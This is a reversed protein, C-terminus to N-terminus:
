AEEKAIVLGLQRTLALRYPTGPLDCTGAAFPLAFYGSLLAHDQWAAPKAPQAQLFHRVIGQHSIGVANAVLKETLWADPKQTLDITVGTGDPETNLAGDVIFLCVFNLSPPGLRTLAQLAAHVAPSDEELAIDDLELLGDDDPAKILRLKAENVEHERDARLRRRSEALAAQAAPPLEAEWAASSETEETYVAEILRPIDRPSEWGSLSHLTWYTRQLVYAPYVWIDAGFRPLGQEDHDVCIYLQPQQLKPPRQPRPHRHLRGARQILLDIPALDTILLDFDLDLSQEIVQTAVVISWRPRNGDKGYRTLVEGEIARRWGAPYRAHFLQIEAGSLEPLSCLEQFVAQSRAVTNCIVAACGGGQLKDVLIKAISGTSRPLRYLDVRSISPWSVPKTCVGQADAVSIAPYAGGISMDQETSYTKLLARRTVAPLTASLIIVSAGCARLWELLRLFLTNMYADYAHVEDFIITKHELGWLRVFFHRTKLVSLLAQDVTGVGFPALLSRKRPLFWGQDQVAGRAREEDQVRLTPPPQRRQWQAQGHLLLPDLAAMPYRRQLFTRVRGYMQNSTAMTPMAVYTGRLQLRANLTDAAFLAAETKGSGTPTEVIILAPAQITTLLDAVAAQLVNPAFPFVADFPQEAADPRWQEFGVSNIAFEARQLTIAAYQGVDLPVNQYPFFEAMSGIWDAVTTLGSLYMFVANQQATGAGLTRVEPPRFLNYLLAVLQRRAEQWPAALGIQDAKVHTVTQASPWLGHHGGLVKAIRRAMPRPMGAIGALLDPLTCTTLTAHGASENVFLDPFLFGSAQLRQMGPVYKRQFAPTAKGLDHSAVVFAFFRGAEDETLRLASAASAREANSVARQWLRLAVCGVDILHCILPHTSENEGTKAWLLQYAPISDAPNPSDVAHKM